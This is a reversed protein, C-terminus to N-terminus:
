AADQVREITHVQGVPMAFVQHDRGTRESFFIVLSNVETFHTGEVDKENDFGANIRFKAM